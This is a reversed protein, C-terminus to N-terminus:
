PDYIGRYVTRIDHDIGLLAPILFLVLLTAMALGFVITIAMPLLFKAQISTEFLLPTLGGITTLSTLLVARLRDQSAGTAAEAMAEGEARREDFRSILIISDNVLIGALGLLSILSLIMLQFGFIYHGFVAGVIGFPIIAMVALPSFYSAFIWALILYIAGLAILTGLKLDTFSDARDEQRGSFWYDVGHRAAIDALPGASLRAVIAANFTVEYNVDATVSVTAKGDRRLITSFGQRDTLTVVEGLPVFEGSAARLSLSRLAAAGADDNLGQRVRLTVEEEDDAFRRAIAGKFANRIQCGVSNVTFGLAKGRSTLKM